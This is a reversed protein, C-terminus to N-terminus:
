HGLPDSPWGHFGTFFHQIHKKTTWVHSIDDPIGLNSNLHPPFHCVRPIQENKPLAVAASLQQLQKTLV